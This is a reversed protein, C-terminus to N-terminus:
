LNKNDIKENEFVEIKDKNYSEFILEITNSINNSLEVIRGDNGIHGNDLLWAVTRGDNNEKILEQQIFSHYNALTAYLSKQETLVTYAILNLQVCSNLYGLSNQLLEDIRKADRSKLKTDILALVDEHISYMLKGVTENSLKIAGLLLEYKISENESAMGEIVLQRASFFGAFRDNYQGKEIRQINRNLVEIQESLSALQGQIASLEPLIGLDKVVKKDITLFSKNKGTLTDKIVAYTEGTKKRVGLSWEGSALKEKAIDSLNAVYEIESQNSLKNVLSIKSVSSFLDARLTKNSMVKERINQNISQSALKQLPLLSFANFDYSYLSYDTVNISLIRENPLDIEFNDM